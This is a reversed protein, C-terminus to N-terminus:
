IAPSPSVPVDGPCRSSVFCQLHDQYVLELSKIVWLHKQTGLFLKEANGQLSGPYLRLGAATPRQGSDSKAGALCLTHGAAARGVGVRANEWEM